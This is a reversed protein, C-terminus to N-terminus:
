KLMKSSSQLRSNTDIKRALVIIKLDFKQDVPLLKIMSRMTEGTTMVDDFLLLKRPLSIGNYRQIVDRIGQRGQFDQEAQRYPKNKFFIHRRPLGIPLLIEDLHHFGRQVIHDQYSPAPLFIFGRYKFRLYDLHQHFFTKGLEIDGLAKYQHIRSKVFPGYDLFSEIAIGEFTNIQHHWELQHYCKSCLVPPRHWQFLHRGYIPSFCVKCTITPLSLKQKHM